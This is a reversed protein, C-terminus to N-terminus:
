KELCSRLCAQPPSSPLPILAPIAERLRAQAVAAGPLWRADRSMHTARRAAAWGLTRPAHGSAGDELSAACGEVHELFSKLKGRFTGIGFCLPFGGRPSTVGSPYPILPLSPRTTVRLLLM